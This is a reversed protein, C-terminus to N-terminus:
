GEFSRRFNNVRDGLKCWQAVLPLLRALWLGCMSYRQRQWHMPVLLRTRHGLIVSNRRRIDQSNPVIDDQNRCGGGGGRGVGNRIHWEHKWKMQECKICANRIGSGYGYHQWVMIIYSRTLVYIIYICVYIFHHFNYTKYRRASTAPTAASRM